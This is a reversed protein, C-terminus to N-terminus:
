NTGYLSSPPRGKPLVVRERRLRQISDLKGFGGKAEFAVVDGNDTRQSTFRRRPDGIIQSTEGSCLEM